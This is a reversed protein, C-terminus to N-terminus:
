DLPEHTHEPAPAAAGPGGAGGLRWLAIEHRLIKEVRAKYERENFVRNRGSPHPILLVTTGDPVYEPELMELTTRWPSPLARQTERGCVILLEINESRVLRDWIRRVRDRPILSGCGEYGLPADSANYRDTIELYEEISLGMLRALNAAAGTSTHPYLPRSPDTNPGPREGLITIRRM